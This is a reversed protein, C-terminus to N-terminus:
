NQRYPEKLLRRARSAQESEANLALVDQYKKIAQERENLVDFMQGAALNARLLLDPDPQRLVQVASYAEAAGHFDRQGRLAEGLGWYAFEVHPDFYKGERAASLVRQYAEISTPGKGWDKLVHGEEMAFLFNRPHAQRLTDGVALAEEYRQERRLFLGLVLKADVAAESGSEGSERIYKLGREKNGSEGVIHALIRVAWPLSGVIYDHMGVVLKADAYTPDLELAREHDKRAGKMSKLASFWSREVLATYTSRLGRTVGRAYYADADKPNARIREESLRLSRALLEQIRKQTKAPISARRKSLFANTSYIGSDLVGARYLERFLLAELLHNAAFPDEPYKEQVHEFDRIARDYNLEYYHAFGSRTVPDTKAPYAGAASVTRTSPERSEQEDRGTAPTVLVGVLLFLLLVPYWTLLQPVPPYPRM